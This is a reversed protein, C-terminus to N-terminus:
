NYFIKNRLITSTTTGRGCLDSSICNVTKHRTKGERERERERERKQNESTKFTQEADNRTFHPTCSLCTCHPPVCVFLSLSLSPLMIFIHFVTFIESIDFAHTTASYTTHVQRNGNRYRHWDFSYHSSYDGGFALPAQGMRSSVLTTRM